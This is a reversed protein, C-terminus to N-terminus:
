GAVDRAFADLADSAARLDSTQAFLAPRDGRRAAIRSQELAAVADDLLGVLEDRVDDSGRGKPQIARFTEEAGSADDEAEGLVVDLTTGLYRDDRAADVTITATEVASRVTEATSAAKKRYDAASRATPVPVTCAATATATIALVVV